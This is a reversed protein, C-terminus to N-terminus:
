PLQLCRAAVIGGSPKLFYLRGSKDQMAFAISRRWVQPRQVHMVAYPARLDLYEITAVHEEKQPRFWENFRDPVEQQRLASLRTRLAAILLRRRFAIILCSQLQRIAM